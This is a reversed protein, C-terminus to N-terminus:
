VTTAKDITNRLICGITSIACVPGCLSPLKKYTKTLPYQPLCKELKELLSSFEQSQKNARVSNSTHFQNYQYNQEFINGFHQYPTLCHDSHNLARWLDHQIRNTTADQHLKELGLQATDAYRVRNAAAERAGGASTEGPHQKVRPM